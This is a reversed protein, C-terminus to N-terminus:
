LVLSMILADEDGYYRPRRGVTAFGLSDYLARAPANSPRVELYVSGAEPYRSIAALLLRRALGLRRSEPHIAINMVHLEDATHKIGVYGLVGGGDTTNAAAVLYASFSSRLEAHWIAGTWPRALSEADIRLVEPLDAERMPRLEVPLAEEREEGAAKL